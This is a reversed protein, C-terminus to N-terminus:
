REIASAAATSAERPSALRDDAMRTKDELRVARRTRILLAAGAGRRGADRAGEAEGSADAGCAFACQRGIRREEAGHRRARVAGQGGRWGPNRAKAAEASDAAAKEAAAKEAAVGRGEEGGGRNRGGEGGGGAAQLHEALGKLRAQEVEFDEIEQRRRDMLREGKLRRNFFARERIDAEMTAIRDTERAIAQAALGASLSSVDLQRKPAELADDVVVSASPPPGSWFKLDAASSALTLRTDAALKRLDLDASLAGDGRPGPIRIPGVKM